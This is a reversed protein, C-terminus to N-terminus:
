PLVIGGPAIRNRTSSWFWAPVDVRPSLWCEQFDFAGDGSINASIVISFVKPQGLPALLEPLDVTLQYRTFYPPEAGIDELDDFEYSEDFLITAPLADNQVEDDYGIVCRYEGEMFIGCPYNSTRFFSFRLKGGRFGIHRGITRGQYGVIVSGGGATAGGPHCASPPYITVPSTGPETFWTAFEGPLIQLARQNLNMPVWLYGDDELDSPYEGTPTRWRVPRPTFSMGDLTGVGQFPDDGLFDAVLTPLRGCRGVPTYGESLIKPVACEFDAEGGDEHGLVRTRLSWINTPFPVGAEDEGFKWESVLPLCPAWGGPSSSHVPRMRGLISRGMFYPDTVGNDALAAALKPHAGVQQTYLYTPPM